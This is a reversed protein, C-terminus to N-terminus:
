GDDEEEQHYEDLAYDYGGWNDVGANQLALLFRQNDLLEKYEEESITVTKM